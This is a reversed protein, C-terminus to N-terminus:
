FQHYIAKITEVVKNTFHYERALTRPIIGTKTSIIEVASLIPEKDMYESHKAMNYAHALEIAFQTMNGKASALSAEFRKGIYIVSQKIAEMNDIQEFTTGVTETKVQVSKEDAIISDAIGRQDKYIAKVLEPITIGNQTLVSVVSELVETPLPDGTWLLVLAYKNGAM